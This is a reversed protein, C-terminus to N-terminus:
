VRIFAQNMASPLATNEQNTKMASAFIGRWILVREVLNGAVTAISQTTLEDGALDVMMMAAGERGAMALHLGGSERWLFSVNLMASLLQAKQEEPVVGIETQLLLRGRSADYELEVMVPEYEIAWADNAIRSVSLIESDLPGAEAVLTNIEEIPLM